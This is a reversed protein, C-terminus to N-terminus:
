ECFADQLWDIQLKDSGSSPQVAVVDFRAQRQSFQPKNILFHNAAYLLKKQKNRTVSEAATGYSSQKRYRVEVFVLQHKHQMILDIEGQRCRYNKDILTLGQQQLYQGALQEIQQGVTQTNKIAWRKLFTNVM